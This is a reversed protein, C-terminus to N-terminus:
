TVSSTPVVMACGHKKLTSHAGKHTINKHSERTCPALYAKLFVRWAPVACVARATGAPRNVTGLLFKSVNVTRKGWTIRYIIGGFTPTAVSIISSGLYNPDIRIKQWLEIQPRATESWFFYHSPSEQAEL